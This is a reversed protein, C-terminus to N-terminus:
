KYATITFKVSNQNETFNLRIWDNILANHTARTMQGYWDIINIMRTTAWSYTVAYTVFARVTWDIYTWYSMILTDDTDNLWAQVIYSSPTFGFWTFDVDWSLVWSGYTYWLVKVWWASWEVERWLKLKQKTQWPSFVDTYYDLDKQKIVEMGKNTDEFSLWKDINM